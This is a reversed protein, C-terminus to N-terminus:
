KAKKLQEQDCSPFRPSNCRRFTKGRTLLHLTIEASKPYYTKGLM